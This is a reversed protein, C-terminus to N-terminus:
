FIYKVKITSRPCDLSGLNRCFMEQNEGNALAEINNMTIALKEHESINWQLNINLCVGAALFIGLVIFCMKMIEKNLTLSILGV